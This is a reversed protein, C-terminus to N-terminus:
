KDEAIFTFNIVRNVKANEKNYDFDMYSQVQLFSQNHM